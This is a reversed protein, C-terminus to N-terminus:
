TRLEEEIKGSVWDASTWIDVDGGAARLAVMWVRQARSARGRASKLERFLIRGHGVIVLDPFGAGNFQVATTWNGSRSLAPRPHYVLYGLTQALEGVASQLESESILSARDTVTM